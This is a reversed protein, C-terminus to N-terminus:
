FAPLIKEQFTRMFSDSPRMIIIETVGSDELEKIYRIVADPTGCLVLERALSDPVVEILKEKDKGADKIANILSPEVELLAQVHPPRNMITQAAQPKAVRLSEDEDESISAPIMRIFEHPKGELGAARRGERFNSLFNTEFKKTGTPGMMGDAVGGIARAMKLGSTTVVVNVDIPAKLGLEYVAKPFVKGEFEVKGTSLLSKIIKVAEVMGTIPKNIRLGLVDGPRGAPGRVIGMRVRGGAMEYLSAALGAVLVPHRTFPNTLGSGIHLRSTSTAIQSLIMYTGPGNLQDGMVISHFGIKEANVATEVCRKITNPEKDAAVYTGFKM